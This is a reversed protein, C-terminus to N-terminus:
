RSAATDFNHHHHNEGVVAAAAMHCMAVSKDPLIDAVRYPAVNCHLISSSSGRLEVAISFLLLLQINSRPLKCGSQEDEGPLIVTM